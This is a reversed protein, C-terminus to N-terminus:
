KIACIFKKTTDISKYVKGFAGEGIKEIFIYKDLKTCKEM